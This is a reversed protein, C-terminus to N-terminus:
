SRGDKNIPLTIFFTSGEGPKNELRVKGHARSVIDQVICLGLGTGEGAPRTTFFPEFIKDLNEPAIGGCNDSFRLEVRDGEVTGSIVLQRTKQGDAARIANDVLSFFLQELDRQDWYVAPLEDMAELRLAIRARRASEGLLRIIREALRKLDVQRVAHESSKRAFNRFRETLTVINAVQNLSDRLKKTVAEASSAAKMKELASELSLRIVTLPQTLEHAVTASLTGLSALQEARVMKERYVALEERSRKSETIDIFSGMVSVARDGGDVVSTAYIQVDFPSGDKGVATLEGIWSRGARLTEIIASAEDQMNWFEAANRGLVENPDDYGWMALFAKNVYTLNGEVDGIAVGNLSSAIAADKITLTRQTRKYETIDRCVALIGTAQGNDDKLLTVSMYSDFATRDKRIHGIEGRWAGQTKTREIGGTLEDMQEDSHLDVVKMGIMEEVTYGHMRAYAGNVYLLKPELDGIAIGDISQEVASSLRRIQEEALKRETLDLAFIAVTAVKGSSDFVPSLSHYVYRGSPQDEFQVPRGTRVVEAVQSKRFEVVDAPLFDYICKGMLEDVSFGLRKAASENMALVTGQTDLLGVSETTANVLSRLTQESERLQEQARKYDTVDRAVTLLVTEDHLRFPTVNLSACYTTGDKRKFEAEFDRVFGDQQLQKLLLERQEPNEYTDRLNIQRIEEASRGMMQLMASNADIIRGDLTALGVGVPLTEFLTRYRLESEWLAQETQKRETIDEGFSQFFRARGQEDFFARNTWRQWRIRGDPAVVRHEHTMSPCDVTLSLIRDLVAQRDQEPILTTFKSGVLEERTKGFYQCYAANVFTIEAGPLFSCLLGPSDEVVSRYRAESQRLAEEAQKRETVDRFIGMLYTRDGLTIPFSNIDAYFVSGDKRRIPIDKALTLERRTQKEFQEVVYPLDEAPHIDSVGLDELEHQSYGLMQRFVRNTMYFKKSEVDTIVIGDAANDFIVRFVQESEKAQEAEKEPQAPESQRVRSRLANLYRLLEAESKPEDSM